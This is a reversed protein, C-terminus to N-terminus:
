RDRGLLSAPALSTNPHRVICGYSSTSQWADRESYGQLRRLITRLVGAHSVVAISKTFAVTRLLQFARLVREEFLSFSEGNPAPLDPYERLWRAAYAPDSREIESWSLGEWDGFDIERLSPCPYCEVHLADAIARATISARRLDSTYIAGINQGRTKEVLTPLQAYGRRNLEPDSHGCFRGAMDTAAHRILVIESM